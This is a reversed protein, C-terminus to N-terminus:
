ESRELWYDKLMNDYASGIPDDFKVVETGVLVSYGKEPEPEPCSGPTSCVPPLPKKKREPPILMPMPPIGGSALELLRLTKQTLDIKYVRGTGPRVDCSGPIQDLPTFTTFLIQDGVTNSRSLVKEGPNTLPIYWGYDSDDPWPALDSHTLIPRSSPRTMSDKIVYQYNSDFKEKPHSRNGTGISLFISEKKIDGIVDIENYIQRNNAGSGSTLDAVIAGEVGDTTNTTAEFDLDFRWIRGGVDTAYLLNALGDGTIDLPAVNAPFSSTMQVSLSNDSDQKADWLVEGNMADIMYLTTGMSHNGRSIPGIDQTGDTINGDEVPDYGGSTFLVVKKSGQWNITAPELRGWTQGLNEYGPTISPRNPFDVPYDGHSEWLLKPESRNTVDLAYFSQGGRRLTLYVYAKDEGNVQGDGNLDKHWKTIPGDVGYAKHANIGGGSKYLDLNQLLEKPIFTFHEGPNTEDIDFAHLFGSNTGLFLTRDVDKIITIEGTEENVLETIDKSYTIIAPESHLPDEMTKRGQGKAWTILDAHYEPTKDEIGLLNRPATSASLSQLADATGNTSSSPYTFAFRTSPLRNAIGGAVVNSGDGNGELDAPTWISRSTGAFFGTAEDVAREEDADVIAFENDIKGMAYQKLNGQWSLNGSPEFVSYYLERGLELSNFANVSVAPATFSNTSATINNFINRLADKIESETDGEQFTGGGYTESISRLLFDTNIGNSTSDNVFGSVAHTIISQTGAFGTADDMQDQSSLYYAMENMCNGNGSCSKSLRDTCAEGTHVFNGDTDTFPATCTIASRDPLSLGGILSQIEDNADVDDTPMGDSFVIVHNPQCSSTIPSEYNGAAAGGVRAGPVSPFNHYTGGIGLFSDRTAFVKTRDGYKVPQGKMYLATEYYSESLPTAGWPDWSKITNEFNLANMESPVMEIGVMGGQPPDYTIPNTFPNGDITITIDGLLRGDFRSLGVNLGPYQAVTDSIIQGMLYLRPVSTVGDRTAYKYNLRNGTFITETSGICNRFIGCWYGRNVIASAPRVQSFPYTILYWALSILSDVKIGSNSTYPQGNQRHTMYPRGDNEELGHSNGLVTDLQCDVYASPDDSAQLRRWVGQLNAKERWGFFEHGVSFDQSPDWQLFKNVVIGNTNLEQRKSECKFSDPHITSDLIIDKVVNDFFDPDGGDDTLESFYLRDNRFPGPYTRTPDYFDGELTVPNVMSGSTDLLFMVNPRIGSDGGQYLEIDDAFLPTIQAMYFFYMTAITIIKRM